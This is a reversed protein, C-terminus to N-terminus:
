NKKQESRSKITQVRQCVGSIENVEHVLETKLVFQLRVKEFTNSKAPFLLFVNGEDFFEM